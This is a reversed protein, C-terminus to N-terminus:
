KILSKRRRHKKLDINHEALLKHAYGFRQPCLNLFRYGNAGFALFKAVPEYDLWMSFTFGEESVQNADDRRITTCLEEMNGPQRARRCACVCLIFSVTIRRM